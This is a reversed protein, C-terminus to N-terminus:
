FTVFSDSHTGTQGTISTIFPKMFVAEFHFSYIKFGVLFQRPNATITGERVARLQKVGDVGKIDGKIGKIRWVRSLGYVLGRRDDGLKTTFLIDPAQIGLDYIKIAYKSLAVSELGSKLILVKINDHATFCLEVRVDKIRFEQRIIVLAPSIIPISMPSPDYNDILVIEFHGFCVDFNLGLNYSHLDLALTLFREDHASGVARRVIVTLVHVVETSIDLQYM